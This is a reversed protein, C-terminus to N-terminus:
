GRVQMKSARYDSIGKHSLINEKEKVKKNYSPSAKRRLLQDEM